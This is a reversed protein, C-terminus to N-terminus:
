RRTPRPRHSRSSSRRSCRRGKQRASRAVPLWGELGSDTAGSTTGFTARWGPRWGLIAVEAGDGLSTIPTKDAEDTLTVRASPDGACAVYVRRVSPSSPLASVSRHRSVFRGELSGMAVEQYRGPRAGAARLGKSRSATGSRYTPLWLGGVEGSVVVIVTPELKRATLGCRVRELQGIRERTAGDDRAPYV